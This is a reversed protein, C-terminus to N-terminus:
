MSDVNKDSSIDEVVVNDHLIKRAVADSKGNDEELSVVEGVIDEEIFNYGVDFNPQSAELKPTQTLWSIDSDSDYETIVNMCVWVVYM